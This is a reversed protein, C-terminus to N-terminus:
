VNVTIAVLPIPFLKDLETEFLTVGAVTGLEGLIVPIVGLLPCNLTAKEGPALLPEDM